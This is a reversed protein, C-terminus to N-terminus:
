IFQTTEKKALLDALKDNSAARQSYDFIAVQKMGGDFIGWHAVMRQATNKARPKRVRPTAPAKARSKRTPKLKADAVDDAATQQEAEDAQKRLERRNRIRGAM